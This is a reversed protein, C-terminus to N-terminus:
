ESLQALLMQKLIELNRKRVELISVPKIESAEKDVVNLLPILQAKLTQEAIEALERQSYIILYYRLYIEPLSRAINRYIIMATLSDVTVGPLNDNFYRGFIFKRDFGDSLLRPIFDVLPLHIKVYDPTMTITDLFSKSAEELTFTFKQETM